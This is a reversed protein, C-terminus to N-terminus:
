EFREFGLAMVSFEDASTANDRITIAFKQKTSKDLKIGFPLGLKTLDVTIAYGFDNNASLHRVEWSAPIHGSKGMRLIDQNKKLPEHIDVEGRYSTYYLRCGNTLAAADAFLYPKGTTGYGILFSLETIYRDYDQVADIYFEVNTVSGDVGMNSSSSPDGDITVHQSFPRVKQPKLPPYPSVIVLDEGDQTIESGYKEGGGDIQIFDVPM